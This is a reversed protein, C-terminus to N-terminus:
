RERCSARGIQDPQGPALPTPPQTLLAVAQPNTALFRLEGAVTEFLLRLGSGRASVEQQLGFVTASRLRDLSVWVGIAGAVATPLVAAALFALYIRRALGGRRPYDM